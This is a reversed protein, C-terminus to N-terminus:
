TQDSELDIFKAVPLKGADRARLRLLPQDPRNGGIPEMAEDFERTSNIATLFCEEDVYLVTIPRPLELISSGNQRASKASALITATECLNMLQRGSVPIKREELLKWIRDWFEENVRVIYETGTKQFRARIRALTFRRAAAYQVMDLRPFYFKLHIRSSSTIGFTGVRSTTMFLVGTHTETLHMFLTTMISQSIDNSSQQVLFVDVDDLLMICGWRDSLRLFEAISQAFDQHSGGLKSHMLRLLPRKLTEALCEVSFTKGCGPPGHLLVTTGGLARTMNHSHTPSMFEPIKAIDRNPILDEMIQKIEPNIPLQDFDQNKDVVLDQIAEIELQSWRLESLLYVSIELPCTMLVQPKVQEVTTKQLQTGLDRTSEELPRMEQDVIIRVSGHESEFQKYSVSCGLEWYRHGRKVLTKRIASEDPLYGAPIFQLSTINRTGYFQSVTLTHYKRTFYVGDHDLSWARIQLDGINNSPQLDMGSLGSVIFGRWAGGEKQYILTGSPYLFPIEQFSVSKCRREQIEIIQHSILQAQDEVAVISLGRRPGGSRPSSHIQTLAQYEDPLTSLPQALSATLLVKVMRTQDKVLENLQSLILNKEDVGSATESDELNDFSDIIIFTCQVNVYELFDVFLSWLGQISSTMEHTLASKKMQLADPNREIIQYLLAQLLTKPKRALGKDGCFHRLVITSEFSSEGMLILPIAFCANFESRRLVKNGEVWLLQSSESEIWSLVKESRLLNRKSSRHKRMDTIEEIATRRRLTEENYSKLEAFHDGLQNILSSDEVAPKMTKVQLSPDDRREDAHQQVFSATERIDKEKTFQISVVHLQSLIEELIAEHSAAKEQQMQALALTEQAVELNKHGTWLGHYQAIDKVDVLKQAIADVLDQFGDWPKGFAKLYSKARSQTYYKIAKSLFKTFLAYAQAIAEILNATPAYAALHDIIEFKIAIQELHLQVKSKLEQYNLQAVLIIKIGAYALAVYDPACDIM